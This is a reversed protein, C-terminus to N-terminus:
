SSDELEITKGHWRCLAFHWNVWCLPFLLCSITRLITIPLCHLYVFASKKNKMSEHELLAILWVVSPFSSLFTLLASSFSKRQMEETQSNPLFISPFSLWTWRYKSKNGIIYENSTKQQHSIQTNAQLQEKIPQM